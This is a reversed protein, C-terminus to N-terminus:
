NHSAYASQIELLLKQAKQTEKTMSGLPQSSHQRRANGFEQKSKLTLTRSSTSLASGWETAGVESNASRWDKSIATCEDPSLMGVHQGSGLAPTLLSM